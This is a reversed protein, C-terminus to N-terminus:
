AAVVGDRHKRCCERAPEPADFTGLFKSPKGLMWGQFKFKDGTRTAAVTYVGCDSIEHWQGARTFKM